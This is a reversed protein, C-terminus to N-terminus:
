EARFSISTKIEGDWLPYFASDVQISPQNCLSIVKGCVTVWGLILRARHRTVDNISVLANSSLLVAFSKKSYVTFVLDYTYAPYLTNATQTM